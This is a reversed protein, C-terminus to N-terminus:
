WGIASNEGAFNTIVSAHGETSSLLVEKGDDRRQFLEVKMNPINSADSITKFMLNVYDATIEGEFPTVQTYRSLAPGSANHLMSVGAFQVPQTADVSSVRVILHKISTPEAYSATAIGATLASTAIIKLLRKM